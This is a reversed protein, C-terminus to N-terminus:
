GKNRTNPIQGLAIGRVLIPRATPASPHPEGSSCLCRIQVRLSRRPLFASKEVVSSVILSHAAETSIVTRQNPNKPNTRQNPYPSCAVALALAVAPEKSLSLVPEEVAHSVFHRSGSREPHCVIQNQTSAFKKAGEPTVSVRAV